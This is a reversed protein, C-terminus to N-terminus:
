KATREGSDHRSGLELLECREFVSDCDRKIRGVDFREHTLWGVAM